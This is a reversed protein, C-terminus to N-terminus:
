RAEVTMEGADLRLDLVITGGDPGDAGVQKAFEKRNAGDVNKDLLTMEGGGLQGSVEVNEDNPVYVTLEGGGQHITLYATEGDPVDLKSLDYEVDGAAVRIPEIPRAPEGPRSPTELEGIDTITRDITGFQADGWEDDFVSWPILIATLVIGLVILARSRGFLSGVLLGVGVIGLPVAVYISPPLSVPSSDIIALVGVAVLAACVTIWGLPSRQKPPRPKEVVPAPLPEQESSAAEWDPEPWDAQDPWSLPYEGEGTEDAVDAPPMDRDIADVPDAPATGTNTRRYLMVVGVVALTLLPFSLWSGSVVIGFTVLVVAALFLAMPGASSERDDTRGLAQDLISGPADDAPVLLWAAAYLLIGVGGFLTLVATAIRLVVPDIGLRQGLGGLVGAVVRQSSSRRLARLEAGLGSTSGPSGQTAPTENM